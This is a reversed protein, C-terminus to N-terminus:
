MWGDGGTGEGFAGSTGAEKDETEMAAGVELPINTAIDEESYFVIHEAEPKLYNKRKM